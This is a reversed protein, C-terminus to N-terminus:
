KKFQLVLASINDMSGNNYAWEVLAKAPNSGARKRLVELIKKNSCRSTVGDSVLCVYKLDGTIKVYFLDPENSIIDHKNNVGKLLRDGIARSIAMRMGRALVRKEGRGDSIGGGADKIRQDEEKNLGPRHDRTIQSVSNGGNIRVARCDGVNIFFLNDDLMLCVLLCSGDKERSKRAVALYEEDLRKPIGMLISKMAVKLTESEQEDTTPFKALQLAQWVYDEIHSVIFKACKDGAHGDCVVFISCRSYGRKGFATSAFAEGRTKSLYSSFVRDEQHPRRGQISHESVLFPTNPDGSLSAM